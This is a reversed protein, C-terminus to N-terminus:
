GFEDRSNTKVQVARAISLGARLATPHTLRGESGTRWPEGYGFLSPPQGRVESRLDRALGAM